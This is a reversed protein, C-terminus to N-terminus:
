SFLMKKSHLYRGYTLSNVSDLFQDKTVATKPISYTNLNDVFQKFVVNMLPLTVGTGISTIGAAVMLVRDGVTSYTFIRAYDWISVKTEVKSSYKDKDEQGDTVVKTEAPLANEETAPVPSVNVTAKEM